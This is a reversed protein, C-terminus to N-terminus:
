TDRVCFSHLQPSWFITCYGLSKKCQSATSFELASHTYPLRLNADTPCDRFEYSVHGYIQPAMQPAMTVVTLPFIFKTLPIKTFAVIFILLCQTRMYVPRAEFQQLYISSFNATSFEHSYPLRLNVHPATELNM